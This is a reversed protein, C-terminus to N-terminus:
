NTSIPCSNPKRTHPQRRRQAPTLAAASRTVIIYAQEYAIANTCKPSMKAWGQADKGVPGGFCPEAPRLKVNGGGVRCYAGDVQASCDAGSARKVRIAKQVPTPSHSVEMAHPTQGDDHGSQERRGGGPAILRGLAFGRFLGRQGADEDLAVVGLAQRGLANKALGPRVQALQDIPEVLGGLVRLDGADDQAEALGLDSQGLDALQAGGHGAHLLRALADIGVDM